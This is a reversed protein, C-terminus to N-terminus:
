KVSPLLDEPAKKKQPFKNKRKTSTIQLGAFYKASNETQMTNIMIKKEGLKKTANQFQRM